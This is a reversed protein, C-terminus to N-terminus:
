VQEPPELPAAPDDKPPVPKGDKPKGGKPPSSGRGAKPLGDDAKPRTFYMLGFGALLLLFGLVLAILPITSEFLQLRGGDDRADEIAEALTEATSTYQLNYVEALPVPNPLFDFDLVARRIDTRELDVIIGTVPDVWVKADTEFTYSVPLPDPLGPLVAPLSAAVEPALEVAGSEVLGTILDKPVASPFNALTAPDQIVEPETTWEFVYTDLDGRQEEGAYRLTIPTRPDGNWGPYDEQDTGIPFGVVLGERGDFVREEQTFNPVHLMTSRDITYWDDSGIIVQGTPGIIDAKSRVLALDGDVQETTVRREVDVPLGILFANGFDASALAEANVINLTGEYVRTTDVDDPFKKQGPVIAFRVVLGLVILVVGGAMAFAGWRRMNM